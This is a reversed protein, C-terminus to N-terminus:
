SNLFSKLNRDESTNELIVYGYRRPIHLRHLSGAMVFSMHFWFFLQLYMESRLMRRRYYLCPNSSFKIPISSTFYSVRPCQWFRLLFFFSCISLARRGSFFHIICVDAASVSFHRRLM